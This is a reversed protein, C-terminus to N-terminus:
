RVTEEGAEKDRPPMEGAMDDSRRNDAGAAHDSRRNDNAANAKLRAFEERAIQRGLARAITLVLADSRRQTEAGAEGAKSGNDNAAHVDKREKEEAM